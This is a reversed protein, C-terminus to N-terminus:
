WLPANSFMRALTPGGSDTTEAINRPRAVPHQQGREAASSDSILPRNAVIADAFAIGLEDNTIEIASLLSPSKQSPVRSAPRM